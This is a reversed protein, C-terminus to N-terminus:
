APTQGPTPPIGQILSVETDWRTPGALRTSGEAGAAFIRSGAPIVLPAQHRLRLLRPRWQATPWLPSVLLIEGGERAVKRLVAPILDWPPNAWHTPSSVGMTTVTWSIALGDLAFAGPQPGRSCFGRTEQHNAATAFLDLTPTRNFHRCAERFLDPRFKYDDPDHGRRSLQDAITNEASRIYTLRSISTGMATLLAFLAKVRLRLGDRPGRQKRIYALAVMSDCLLWIRRNALHPRLAEVTLTVASIEHTSISRADVREAEPIFGSFNVLPPATQAVRIADAHTTTSAPLPFLAGGYGTLSADTALLANPALRALSRTCRARSDVTASWWAVEAELESARARWATTPITDDWQLPSRALHGSLAQLGGSFLRGSPVAEAAANLKGVLRALHRLTAGAPLGATWRSVERRVDRRRRGPLRLEMRQSDVAFGLFECRQAPSWETKDENVLWGLHSMASRLWQAADRLTTRSPCVLLHDDSYLYRRVSPFRRLLLDYLPTVMAMFAGPSSRLGMPLCRFQFTRQGVAVSTLPRSEAALPVQFFAKSLDVKVMWDSRRLERCVQGITPYTVPIPVTWDNLGRLDIISRWSGDTKALVFLRSFLRPLARDEPCEELVGLRLLEGIEALLASRAEAPLRALSDIRRRLRAPPLPVVQSQQSPGTMVMTSRGLWVVTFGGSSVAAIFANDMTAALQLWAHRLAPHGLRGGVYTPVVAAPALTENEWAMHM